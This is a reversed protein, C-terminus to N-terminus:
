LLKSANDISLYVALYHQKAVLGALQTALLIVKNDVIGLNLLLHTAGGVLHAGILNVNALVVFIQPVFLMKLDTPSRM